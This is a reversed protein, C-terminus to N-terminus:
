VNSIVEFLVQITMSLFFSLALIIALFYTKKLVKIFLSKHRQLRDNKQHTIQLTTLYNKLEKQEFHFSDLLQKKEKNQDEIKSIYLQINLITKNVHYQHEKELYEINFNRHHHEIKRVDKILSKFAYYTGFFILFVILSLRGLIITTNSVFTQNDFMNVINQYWLFDHSSPFSPILYLGLIISFFLISILLKKQFNKLLLLQKKPLLYYLKKIQKIMVFFAQNYEEIYKAFIDQLIRKLGAGKYAPHEIIEDITVVRSSDKTQVYFQGISQIEKPWSKHYMLPNHLLYYEVNNKGYELLFMDELSPNFLLTNPHTLEFSLQKRLHYSSVNMKNYELLLMLEESKKM